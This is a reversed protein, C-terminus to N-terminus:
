AEFTKRKNEAVELVRPRTDEGVIANVEEVTTAATIADCQHRVSPLAKAKDTDGGPTEAAPAVPAPAVPAPAVPAPAVPAAAKLLDSVQLGKSLERQQRNRSRVELDVASQEHYAETEAKLVEYLDGSQAARKPDLLQGEGELQSNPIVM